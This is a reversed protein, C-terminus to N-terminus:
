MNLLKDYYDPNISTILIWIVTFLDIFTHAIIIPLPNKKKNYIICLIITLPLFSLFRYGM